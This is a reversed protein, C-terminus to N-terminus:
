REELEIEIEWSEQSYVESIRSSLDDYFDDDLADFLNLIITEAKRLIEREEDSLNIKKTTFITM